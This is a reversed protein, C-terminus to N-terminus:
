HALAARLQGALAKAQEQTWPLVGNEAMLAHFQQQHYPIGPPLPSIHWHM